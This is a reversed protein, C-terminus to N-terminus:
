EAGSIRNGRKNSTWRSIWHRRESSLKRMLGGCGGCDGGSQLMRCLPNQCRSFGSQVWLRTGQNEIGKPEQLGRSKSKKKRYGACIHANGMLNQEKGVESVKCWQM